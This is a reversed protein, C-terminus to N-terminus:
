VSYLGPWRLSSACMAAACILGPRLLDRARDMTNESRRLLLLFILNAGGFLVFSAGATTLAVPLAFVDLGLTVVAWYGALVLTLGVLSRYGPLASSPLSSRWILGNLVPLFYTGVAAGALLGTALRLPNTPDYPTAYGIDWAVSNFGDLAMALVFIALVIAVRLQPFEIARGRGTAWAWVVALLAGAYLGSNRACIISQEGSLFFSHTSDPHYDVGSHLVRLVRFVPGPDLLVGVLVLVALGAPLLWVRPTGSTRVASGSALDM